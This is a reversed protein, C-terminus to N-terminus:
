MNKNDSATAYKDDTTINIEDGASIDFDKDDITNGTRIEPGKQANTLRALLSDMGYM